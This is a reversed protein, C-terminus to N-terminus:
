RSAYPLPSVPKARREPSQTNIEIMTGATRGLYASHKRVAEFTRRTDSMIENLQKASMAPTDGHKEINALPDNMYRRALEHTTM